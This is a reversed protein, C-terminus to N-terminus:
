LQPLTDGPAPSRRNDLWFAYARLHDALDGEIYLQYDDLGVLVDKEEATSGPSSWEAIKRAIWKLVRGRERWWERVLEVTWHDDGDYAWGAFPDQRVGDLVQLLEALNRPQRYLFEQEYDEVDGYLVHRPASLRGVWCTDTMAGYIPGPVNLSNREEWKGQFMADPSEIPWSGPALVQGRLRPIWPVPDWYMEGAGESWDLRKRRL